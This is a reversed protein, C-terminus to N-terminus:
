HATHDMVHRAVAVANKIRRLGVVSGVNMNKGDMLLADLFVEGTESPSGGYGVTTLCQNEECYAATNQVNDLINTHNWAANIARDAFEWTSVVVKSHIKTSFIIVPALIQRMIRIM